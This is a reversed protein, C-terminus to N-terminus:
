NTMVIQELYSPIIINKHQKSTQTGRPTHIMVKKGQLKSIFENLSSPTTHGSIHATTINQRYIQRAIPNSTKLAFGLTNPAQYGCLIIGTKDDMKTTELLTRATGGQLMGHGAVVVDDEEFDTPLFGKKIDYDAKTGMIKTIEGALGTTIIRKKKSIGLRNLRKIMEQTRGVSFAPIILRKNREVAQLIQTNPDEKPIHGQYYTGDFITLDCDKPFDAGSFLESSDTSFDGTFFIRKGLVNIEYGYSGFLHSASYPTVEFGPAIEITKKPKLPHFANFLNILNSSKLFSNMAHTFYAQHTKKDRIINSTNFLLKETLIKTSPSAYWRMNNKSSILYPLGGTHDLHAHSVLVATVFQLSPHWRPVANNAVSMGFDLLVASNDHQVVIGMNGIGGGGLFTIRIKQAISPSSYAKVSVFEKILDQPLTALTEMQVTKADLKSIHPQLVPNTTTPVVPFKEEQYIHELQKQFDAISTKSELKIKTSLHKAVFYSLKNLIKINVFYDLYPLTENEFYNSIEEIYEERETLSKTSREIKEEKSIHEEAETYNPSIKKIKAQFISPLVPNFGILRSFELYSTFNLNEEISVNYIKNIFVWYFIVSLEEVNNGSSLRVQIISRYLELNLCDYLYLGILYYELDDFNEESEELWSLGFISEIKTNEIIYYPDDKKEAYEEIEKIIGQLVQDPEPNEYKTKTTKTLIYKSFDILQHM